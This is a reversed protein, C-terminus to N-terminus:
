SPVEAGELLSPRILDWQKSSLLLMVLRNAVTMDASRDGFSRSNCRRDYSVATFKGSLIDAASSYFGAEEMGGHILLLLPGNGTRECYIEADDNIVREIISASKM